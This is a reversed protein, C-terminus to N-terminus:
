GKATMRVRVIIGSQADYGIWEHAKRAPLFQRLRLNGIDLEPPGHMDDKAAIVVVGNKTFAILAPYQVELLHADKVSQGDGDSGAALEGEPAFAIAIGGPRTTLASLNRPLGLVSVWKTATMNEDLRCLWATRWNMMLLSDGEGAFFDIKDDKLDQETGDAWYTERARSFKLTTGPEISPDFRMLVAADSHHLWLCYQQAAGVGTPLSQLIEGQAIGISGGMGSQEALLPTGALIRISQDRPNFQGLCVRTARGVGGSFFFLVHDDADIVISQINGGATGPSIAPAASPAPGCAALIATTTLATPQAIENQGAVFLTDQGSPSEQIWYVDGLSDVALHTPRDAALQTLPFFELTQPDTESAEATRPSGPVVRQEKRGCGYALACCLFYCIQIKWRRM